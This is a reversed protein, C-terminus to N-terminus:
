AYYDNFYRGGAMASLYAGYKRAQQDDVMNFVVGAIKKHADLRHVADRVISRATAAWRVVVVTKDVLGSTVLPDIVAGLPPSDIVVYDFSKKFHTLFTRMKESGLLDSPNQCRSGAPMVWIKARESYQIVDHINPRGLLLDVLGPGKVGLHHSAAPHRLDADIYLVKMGSQAASVALALSVTTKGEGPLASTMQIVTPPEDVDTMQIALRLARLVEAQRSLPKALPILYAPMTEGNVMVDAPNLRSVSALLPMDLLREVQRPTTFGTNLKEKAFAGGAGLMLGIILSMLLRQTKRPSSPGGPPLAPSIVRAERVEFTSQSEVIKSKQLFDDYLAKNAAATRELDRLAIAITSDTGAQGNVSPLSSEITGERAKALDVDSKVSAILRRVEADIARKVDRREARANVLMPHQATYRSELDAEKQSLEADRQRLSQLIGFSALDAPLNQLNGSAQLSTLLNLRAQKEALDTKAAVLKADLDALQQESLPVNGSRQQLGQDNRFKIVAEESDRVQNRLEVLRDALWASAKKAAEYRSDLKDVVYAAAVANALRAARQPDASTVSVWLVYAQGSRSAGVASKLAETSSVIEAESPQRKEDRPAPPAAPEGADFTLFPLSFFRPSRAVPPAGPPTGFEPDDYLREREVVRRLLVSSRIISIQSEITSLDLNADNSNANSLAPPKDGRPDLLLQAGATYLPRETSLSIAGVLLAILAVAGIFKWARRLFNLAELFDFGGEGEGHDDTLHDGAPSSLFRQLM